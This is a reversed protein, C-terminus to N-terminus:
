EKGAKQTDRYSEVGAIIEGAIEEVTKEDTEVTLDSAARYFPERERM